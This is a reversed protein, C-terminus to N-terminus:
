FNLSTILTGDYKYYSYTVMEPRIGQHAEIDDKFTNVSDEMDEAQAELSEADATLGKAYYYSYIIHNGEVEFTINSFYDLNNELYENIEDDTSQKMAPESYIDELTRESSTSGSALAEDTYDELNEKSLYTYDLTWQGDVYYVKLEESEDDYAITVSYGDTVTLGPVISNMYNEYTKLDEASLPASDVFEYDFREIMTEEAFYQDMYDYFEDETVDLNEIYEKQVIENPFASFIMRTDNVFSGELFTTIPVVYEEDALAVEEVSEEEEVISEQVTMQVSEKTEETEKPASEKPNSFVASNSEKKEGCGTFCITAAMIGALLLSVKKKM